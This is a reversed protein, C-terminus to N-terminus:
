RLLPPVDELLETPDVPLIEALEAPWASTLVMPKGSTPHAFSIRWAHLAHRSLGLEAELIEPSAGGQAIALFHSEDLGYMKDGLLPYGVHDLHARIQHTRGTLLWIQVLTIEQGRFIGHAIPAALTTAPLGGEELPRAGVKIEIKSDRAPGLPVDIRMPHQMKGRAIALYQKDIERTFFAQKLTIASTGHRGFLILGSTERDLRHAMEWGHRPGMKERMVATLTQQIYRASPHVALGGPKDVVLLSEDQWVVEYDRRTVPEVPAPRRIMLLQGERVRQSKKHLVQGTVRCSVRGEAIVRHIRARSLRRFRLGLYRDLRYGDGYREVVLPIDILAADDSADSAFESESEIISM